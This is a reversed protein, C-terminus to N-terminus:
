SYWTQPRRGVVVVNRTPVQLHRNTHLDLTKDFMSYRLDAVYQTEPEALLKTTQALLTNSIRLISVFGCCNKEFHVTTLLSNTGDGITAILNPFGLRM